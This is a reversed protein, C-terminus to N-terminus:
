VAVVEWEVGELRVLRELVADQYSKLSEDPLTGEAVAHVRHGDEVLRIVIGEVVVRKIKPETRSKVGATDFHGVSYLSALRDLDPEHGLADVLAAVSKQYEVTWAADRNWLAQRMEWLHNRKRDKRVFYWQRWSRETTKHWCWTATDLMWEDLNEVLPGGGAVAVMGGTIVIRGHENLVARHKHIRGPSQGTCNIAEIALTTLDLRFVPTHGVREAEKYGLRGVIIISTGLLTASHFDTPPFVEAPFGFHRIEGTPLFVTVDNYICFDPDYFDEHEGGIEVIAGDALPTTSRGYRQYTWTPGDYEDGGSLAQAASWANAGSRIMALRFPDDIPEPNGTGFRVARGALFEERTAQPEAEHSVGLLAAHMEPSLEGIDAGHALLMKVTDLTTAQAIASEPIGNRQHIDAGHEILFSLCAADGLAAAEMLPTTQFEDAIDVPVGQQLLWHLMTVSGGQVAYQLSTKACRGVVDRQAGLALLHAAKATDGMHVAILFPTRHWCDRSEIDGGASVTRTIDDLTGLAVAFAVDNWELDYPNAGATLLLDVVDFRGLRSAVRLPTEGYETKVDVDVNRAVLGAVQAMLDPGNRYIVALLGEM